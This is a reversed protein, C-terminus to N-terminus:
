PGARGSMGADVTWMPDLRVMTLGGLLSCQRESSSPFCDTHRTQFTSARPSTVPRMNEPAHRSLPTAGEPPNSTESRQAVGSKWVWRLRDISRKRTAGVRLAHNLTSHSTLVTLNQL